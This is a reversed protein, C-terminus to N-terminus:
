QITSGNVQKCPWRSLSSESAGLPLFSTGIGRRWGVGRHVRGQVRRNTFPQYSPTSRRKGAPTSICEEMDLRRFHRHQNSNPLSTSLIFNIKSFNDPLAQPSTMNTQEAHQITENSAYCTRHKEKNIFSTKNIIIIHVSRTLFYTQYVM